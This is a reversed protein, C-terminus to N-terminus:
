SVELIDGLVAVADCGAYLTGDVGDVDTTGALLIRAAGAERLAAAVAAGHEDYLKDSSAIVAVPTGAERFASAIETPDTGGPGDVTDVGGANVLNRTFSARATYQALKGVTALFVSPRTDAPSGYGVDEGTGPQTTDSTPPTTADQDTM